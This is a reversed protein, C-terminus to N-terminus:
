DRGVFALMPLMENNLALLDGNSVVLVIKNLDSPQAEMMTDLDGCGLKKCEDGWSRERQRMLKPHRSTKAAVFVM